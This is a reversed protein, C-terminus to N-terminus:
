EERLGVEVYRCVSGFDCFECEKPTVQFDGKKMARVTGCLRNLFNDDGLVKREAPDTSFFGTFDEKGDAFDRDVFDLRRLLWYRATFRHLPAGGEGAFDRAAALLYVPMQFSTKGLQEKKLFPRYKGSDGGMKYDVVRLRGDGAGRDMRDITGTLFIRAGDEDVVELSDFSHEFRAPVFGSDDEAELAVVKELVTRIKGKEIEWLLPEGTTHETAWRAFVAEAEEHLIIQATAADTLPLRGEDRLRTFLQRLIEHVLSGEERPALEMEPTELPILKLLRRLFYRFPCCGYEELTTPAFRNGEASEYYARLEAVIDDRTLTGTCTNSLATRAVKTESQFFREREGELGANAAIRALSVQLSGAEESALPFHRGAALANLLEERELCFAPEPPLASLPIRTEDLAMKMLLEELFPSRLMANGRGDVSCCSFTLQETACGVALFFLLPEEESKEKATRFPRTGSARRFLLKEGDKLLPHGDHRAPCVGENLGGMFLHAFSLGRIDHFNLIAVGARREGALFVSEMGQRLLAVFDACSLREDALGLTRMDRELDKMVQRFLTIASADRKLTRPDAAEIGRRYILRREIFKELLGTFERLTKEGRFMRLERVLPRLVRLTAEEREARRDRNKLFDIRKGVLDEMDGLSEDIYGAAVLVAEITDPSVGFRSTDCYTSKVLGLLEERGFRSQVVAFPALCADVLPSTFLPAGRRFSVPIRYRRCVDELMPGYVRLDRFVVAIGAPDTGGELLARIRRGIEECERYLGPAVFFAMGQPPASKEAGAEDGAFVADLLPTLFVGAPEVFDPELQLDSEELAELAEATRSVYAYLNERGANWPLVLEVPLRRSIGALLALQLPTLDYIGRCRVASCGAFPPPLAGGVGLHALAALEMDQGDALGKEDLMRGYAGYLAALEPLRGNGPIRRIVATLAAPELMAQKLDAFLTDLSLIFGPFDKLRAFHGTSERYREQVIEKLLLRRGVTSIPRRRDGAVRYIDEALRKLTLAPTGFLVGSQAVAERNFAEVAATSPLIYLVGSMRRNYGM